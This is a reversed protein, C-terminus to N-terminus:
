NRWIKLRIGGNLLIVFLVLVGLVAWYDKLIVNEWFQLGNNVAIVLSITTLLFIYIKRNQKLNELYVM